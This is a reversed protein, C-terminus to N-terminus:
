GLKPWNSVVKATLYDGYTVPAYDNSDVRERSKEQLRIAASLPAVQADFNPEFFFPTRRCSESSHLGKAGEM